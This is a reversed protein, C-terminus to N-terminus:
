NQKLGRHLTEVAERALQGDKALLAIEATGLIVGAKVYNHSGIMVGQDCALLKAHLKPDDRNLAHKFLAKPLRAKERLISVHQGLGGILGHQNPHAYIVEVKVGRNIARLLHQATISNPFFQCTIVLWEQASDILELAEQFILSRGKKGSDIYVNTVEDINLCRDIGAMSRSTHKSHIINELMKYLRDSFNKDRWGIMIDVWDAAQLNCGGLFIQDNIIAAKIHSRGSVPINLARKPINLIETHGTPYARITELLALKHRYIPNLRKPLTQRGLLPGPLHYPNLLFSHADVALTVHVGRSAAATLAEVIEAIEPETPEFTMSMLLVRDGKKTSKIQSVLETRYEIHTHFKFIDNARSDM